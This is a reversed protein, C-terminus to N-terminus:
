FVKVYTVFKMDDYIFKTDGSMFVLCLFKKADKAQSIIHCKQL